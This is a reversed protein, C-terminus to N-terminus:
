VYSKPTFRAAPGFLDDTEGTPTQTRQPLPGVFSRQTSAIDTPQLYTVWALYNQRLQENAANQAAVQEDHEVAAEPAPESDEAATQGQESPASSEAQFTVEAAPATSGIPAFAPSVVLFPAAPVTLQPSEPTQPEAVADALASVDTQKAAEAAVAEALDDDIMTSPAPEAEPLPTPAPPSAVANQEEQDEKEEAAVEVAADPTEAPAPAAEAATPTPTPPPTPIVEGPTPISELHEAEVVADITTERPQTAQSVQTLDIVSVTPTQAVLTSPAAVAEPAPAPDPTVAPAPAVDNEQAQEQQQEAAEAQVTASSAGALSTVLIPAAAPLPTPAPTSAVADQEQQDAAAVEIAGDPTTAPAAEVATPTSAPTPTSEPTEVEVVADIATERPQTAQSVQALDIVSVTQTQAVLTSPAAVAEPAPAPDPTAIRTADPTAVAVSAPAVDNEQEEAVAEAQETTSSAAVPDAAASAVSAPAAEPIAQETVVSLNVVPLAAAAETVTSGLPLGALSLTSGFNLLVDDLQAQGVVGGPRQNIWSEPATSGFNLLVLDLDGQNVTRDANFDGTVESNFTGPAAAVWSAPDDGFAEASIRNLSLGNGDADEFPALDDYVVQDIAVFPTLSPDAELPGDAQQLIIRGFSNNLNATDAGLLRVGADLGYHARFAEAKVSNAAPDFTVVTVASAAALSIGPTFDVDAEGRLRYDGLDIATSRTNFIVVFELDSETLTPDIALAEAAPESPHYSFESLVVDSVAPAGNEAGPSPEALRGLRGASSPLRGLSEGNFTAGFDVVDEFAPQGGADRTLYVQDGNASLAFDNPGPNLPTPNFDSEDFSVYGGAALVTGDPVRFKFPTEGDDSLFWGSIDIAQATPNFLEITDSQPADTHALVENIVVGQPAVSAEGPTGNFTTSAAWRYHKGAEDAPTQADDILVLSAGRGDAAVSWLGSDAYDVSVIENGVSDLLTLEEGSNSLGGAWQGLVTASDGYRFRFADVDEVVVVRQDPLLEFDGFDFVVGETLQVGALNITGENSPNYLEIFEFDDNNDFGAAIEAATPDAPNYHIESIRLESQSAPIASTPIAFTAESLGSWEGGSFTRARINTTEDLILAASSSAPITARLEADFSIDSSDPAVQHIEIAFTNDGPLLLEAPITFTVPTSEASGGIGTEALVDYTVQGLPIDESINSRFIEQGNLYVVAGDDRTLDFTVDTFEGTPVNITKRFYTTIHRDNPDDGGDVITTNPEDPDGYGLESAGSSWSSDDFTSSRWATGLDQGSDEFSWTAGSSFLTTTTSGPNFAFANPNIGGGVLRPDSGDTTYYVTDNANFALQSGADIEGGNQSADDILFSPADFDPFLGRARFNALINEAINPLTNTLAENAAADYSDPTHEGWRASELLFSLRVEDLREQLRETAREPSLVGGEGFMNQIRDTYLTLFEPDADAVLTGLINGPGADGTRDRNAGRLWGDADNLYFTTPISGDSAGGARYENESQGAMFILMFDLFNNLDIAEGLAEFRESPSLTDDEVISTIHAWAEGSGDFVQGPSWGNPTDNGNNINGNIAEYDESDGGYYSSLFDDNWRERLHYQGWYTGNIYVHVFRGHPAVHGADLLTDDAFRNSHYFGRDSQDQSGSRIDLQDFSDTAPVAGDAIGDFLPFNLESAGYLSRFNLRFSQKEFDSFGGGFSRIGADIQFGESGDPALWEVSARQEPTDRNEIENGFNFSLTPIALLGDRLQDAYRPDETIDTDLVDSTIVDDIFVYSHTTTALTTFNERVSATRLSTTSSITLTTQAFADANAPLVQTGNTISPESGDTTYVLITGAAQSVIDVDFAEEHFGREVNVTPLSDIVGDVPDLNASGPTPTALFGSVSYTDDAVFGFTVNPSQPPFDAGNTGFETVVNGSPDYFGLYEGGSSLGFETYLDTGSTPDDDDGAFVVLYQGGGLTTDPFVFKSTDSADDTLTYGALNISEEGANFLEIYDTSNGNDDDIFGANSASFENILPVAGPQLVVPDLKRLQIANIQIRGQFGVGDTFGTLNFSQSTGDATFTGLGFDGPRGNLPQNNLNLDVGVGGEGNDLRTVYGSDRDGRADSAFLQIEYTDGVTLGSLTVSASDGSAAGWWGGEILPGYASGTGGNTFSRLNDNGLTTTISEDGPSQSQSFSEANARTSSVFDVGNTTTTTGSDTSGNLAFVLSGNTSIVDAGSIIGSSWAITSFLQRPELVEYANPLIRQNNRRNTKQAPTSQHLSQLFSSIHM